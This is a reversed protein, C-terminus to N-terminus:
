HLKDASLGIFPYEIHENFWLLPRIDFIAKNKGKRKM